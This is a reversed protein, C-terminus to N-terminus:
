SRTYTCDCVAKAYPQYWIVKRIEAAEGAGPEGWGCWPVDAGCGEGSMMVGEKVNMDMDVEADLTCGLMCM